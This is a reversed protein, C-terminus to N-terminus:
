FRGAPWSRATSPRSPLWLRCRWWSHSWFDMFLTSPHVTRWTTAEWSQRQLNASCRVSEPSDYEVIGWGKSRGASTAFVRLCSIGRERPATHWLCGAEGEEDRVVNAYVVEGCERFKDKLDQWSTKWNLNSM